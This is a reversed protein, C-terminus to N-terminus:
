GPVVIRMKLPVSCQVLETGGRKECACLNASGFAGKFQFCHVELNPDNGVVGDNTVYQPPQQTMADVPLRFCQEPIQLFNHAIVTDQELIDNSCEIADVVTASRPIDWHWCVARLRQGSFHMLVTGDLPGPRNDFPQIVDGAECRPRNPSLQLFHVIPSSFLIFHCFLVVSNPKERSAMLDLKYHRASPPM